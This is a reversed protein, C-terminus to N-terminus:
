YPAAKYNEENIYKVEDGVRARSNNIFLLVNDKMANSVEDPEAWIREMDVPEVYGTVSALISQPFFCLILLVSIFKLFRKKM